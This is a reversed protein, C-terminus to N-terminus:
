TVTLFREVVVAEVPTKQLKGNGVSPRKLQEFNLLPAHRAHSVGPGHVIPVSAAPSEAVKCAVINQKSTGDSTPVAVTVAVVISGRLVFLVAVFVMVFPASAGNMGQVAVVLLSEISKSNVKVVLLKSTLTPPTSDNTKVKSLLLEFAAVPTLTLHRKGGDM